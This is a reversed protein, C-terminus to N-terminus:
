FPGTMFSMLDAQRADDGGMHGGVVAVIGVGEHCGERGVRQHVVDFAFEESLGRDAGPRVLLNEAVVDSDFNLPSILLVAVDNQM